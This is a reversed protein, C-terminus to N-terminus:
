EPIEDLNVSRKQTAMSNAYCDFGGSCVLNAKWALRMAPNRFCSACISSNCFREWCAARAV